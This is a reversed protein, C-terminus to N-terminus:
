TLWDADDARGPVTGAKPDPEGRVVRQLRARCENILNQVEARTHADEKQWLAARAILHHEIVELARPSIDLELHEYQKM